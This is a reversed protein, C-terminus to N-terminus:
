KKEHELARVTELIQDRWDKPFDNLFAVLTAALSGATDLSLVAAATELKIHRVSHTTDGLQRVGTDTVEAEFKEGGIETWNTTFRLSIITGDGIDAANVTIGTPHM